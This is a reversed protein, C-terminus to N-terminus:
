RRLMVKKKHTYVQRRLETTISGGQALKVIGESGIDVYIQVM